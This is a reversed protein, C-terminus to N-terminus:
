NYKKNLKLYKNYLGKFKEFKSKRVLAKIRTRKIINNLKHTLKYNLKGRFKPLINLIKDKAYDINEFNNCLLFYLFETNGNITKVLQL